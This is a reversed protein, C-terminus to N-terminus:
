VSLNSFGFGGLVLAVVQDWIQKGSRGMEGNENITELPGDSMYIHLPVYRMNLPGDEIQVAPFDMGFKLLDPELRLHLAEDLYGDTFDYHSRLRWSVVDSVHPLIRRTNEAAVFPPLFQKIPDYGWQQLAVTADVVGYPPIVVWAHGLVADQFDQFDHRYFGCCLDRSLVEFTTSGIVSFSWIGLRDLMRAMMTSAEVCGGHWNDAEFASIILECLRPVVTRVYADYAVDRPRLQVWRAYAERLITPNLSSPQDYFGFQSTDVGAARLESDLKHFEGDEADLPSSPEPGSAQM